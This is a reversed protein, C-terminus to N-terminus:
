LCRRRRRATFVLRVSVALVTLVGLVAWIMWTKIVGEQGKEFGETENIVPYVDTSSEEETANHVREPDEIFTVVFDNTVEVYSDGDSSVVAQGKMSFVLQGDRLSYKGYRLPGGTTPGAADPPLKETFYGPLRTGNVSVSVRVDRLSKETFNSIMLMYQLSPLDDLSEVYYIGDQPAPSLVIDLSFAPDQESADARQGMFLLSAIVLLLVFRIYRM